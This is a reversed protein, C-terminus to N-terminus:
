GYNSAVDDFYFQLAKPENRNQLGTTNIKSGDGSAPPSNYPSNAGM